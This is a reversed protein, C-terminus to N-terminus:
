ANKVKARGFGRPLTCKDILPCVANMILIAFSMGEPYGGFMRIIITVIGIGTGYILMGKGTIPSTVMDTAMFFAGLVLGGTLVHFLPDAYRHPNVVWFLGSTVFAAAMCSLPIHWTIYGKWILFGAGLLLALISVEGICGGRYGFFLDLLRIHGISALGETKLMGLPTATTVTDVSKAFLYGPKQWRTLHVPWSVLMVVRAILAPNFPNNGLGGYIAKGLIIAIVSGTLVMWWPLAPPLTLALLLGTVAASGDLVTSMKKGLLPQVLAEAAVAGFIGILIVKLAGFGFLYIGALSTPLLALLVSYMIKSVTVESRMHPSASVTLLADRTGPISEVAAIDQTPM